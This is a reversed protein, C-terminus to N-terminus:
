LARTKKELRLVVEKFHRGREEYNKYQDFSSCAPSLLVTDGPRALSFALKVAEEMDKVMHVPITKPLSNRIREASEGLLVVARAKNKLPEGLPKFDIGKYKGGGIWVVKGEPALIGPIAAGVNTAKSDNVFSIGELEAVKEMRHELGKFEELTRSIAWLPCGMAWACLAAAMSNQAGHPGGLSRNQLALVHRDAGLVLEMQGEKLRATGRKGDLSFGWVEMPPDPPLARLAEPDDLNVVAVDGKGQMAFIRSKARRYDEMTPHRDLHDETLNLLAAVKPRFLETAELQFSSVEVVAVEPDLGSNLVQILPNGINGGVFVKKGWTELIMGVLTTTTTKGNTGTVAVMPAKLYWSALELEGVVPCGRKLADKLLGMDLPVGPSVVIGQAWHFSEEKHPGFELGIGLPELEQRLGPFSSEEAMDVLRVIAGRGSLFRAVARGTRAAGVVLIRMGKLEWPRMQRIAM